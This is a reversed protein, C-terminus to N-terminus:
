LEDQSFIRFKKHELVHVAQPLNDVQIALCPLHRETAWVTYANNINIEGAILASCVTLIARKGPPLAVVLVEGETVPMGDESFIQYAADPDDVLMRLIACDVKGEVSLGIIRIPENQLLRTIRLLQGLRNELFVTMQRCGAHEAGEATELPELSM